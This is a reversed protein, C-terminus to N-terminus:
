SVEPYLYKDFYDKADQETLGYSMLMKVPFVNQKQYYCYRNQAKKVSEINFDDTNNGVCSLYHDLSQMGIDVVQNLEEETNVGTAAIMSDSFIQKGWEPLERQKKWTINKVKDKFWFLLPHDPNSTISYDCFVASMKNPTSVIDFGLIPASDDLHPFISLHLVWVNGRNLIQISAKRFSWSSFTKNTWWDNNYNAMEIPTGHKALKAIIDNGLPQLKDTIINV